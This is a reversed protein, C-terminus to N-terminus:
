CGVGDDPRALRRIEDHHVVFPRAARIRARYRGMELYATGAVQPRSRLPFTTQIGDWTRPADDDHRVTIARGDLAWRIEVRSHHRIGRDVSAVPFQGVEVSTGLDDPEVRHLHVRIEEGVVIFAILPGLATM